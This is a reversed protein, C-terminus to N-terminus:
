QKDETVIEGPLTSKGNWIKRGPYISTHIGTKATDGMVTGFKRKGTDILEDNVMSKINSGDHKLNAAITGGAYNVNNGLVSDPIYSLHPVKTGNGLISGKIEVSAGVHCDDGISAFNRIYANPGIVCNKGIFVNGDIYSGSKIVSGEGLQVKGKIIAGPEVMGKIDSAQRNLLYEALDLLHWPYGVPIWVYDTKIVKFSMKKKLEMVMDPIEMENRSSPNISSYTDFIDKHFRFIGLNAIDSIFETPKEVFEELDGNESVKLVGYNQWDEKVKGMITSGEEKSISAFYEPAYYDDGYICYFWDSSVAEKASFLADGTGKPEQQKVIKVPIDNWATGFKQEFAESLYNTIIILESIYDKAGNLTHELVSSGQVQLLPKPVTNTLPLLRTGKGAALVVLPLKAM